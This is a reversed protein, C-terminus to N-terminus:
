GSSSHKGIVVAYILALSLVEIAGVRLFLSPTEVREVEPVADKACQWLATALGILLYMSPSYTRSLFLAATLFGVLSCRIAVGWRAMQAEPGDGTLRTLQNLELVSDLILALWIFYGVLGLESFCLVFSNHATMYDPTADLFGGYGVGLLPHTRLMNLGEGWLDLRGGASEEQTSFARGGAMNTAAAAGALTIALVATKMWGLRSRLGVVFVGGLAVIAGRSHTLYITYLLVMGTATLLLNRLVRRREYALGLFPIVMVLAQAFDNPDNLFGLSRVRWLYFGSTDDAPIEAPATPEQPADALEQYQHMVLRDAMFGFHFAALSACALLSLCGLYVFCTIALRRISTVNWITLVFLLAPNGFEAMAGLAGGVWGNSARSLGICIIFGGLLLGQRSAVPRRREVLMGALVAALAVIGIM